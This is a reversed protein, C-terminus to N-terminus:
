SGLEFTLSRPREGFEIAGSMEGFTREIMVAGGLETEGDDVPWGEVLYSSVTGGLSSWVISRSGQLLHIMQSTSGVPELADGPKAAEFVAPTFITTAAIVLAALTVTLNRSRIARQM